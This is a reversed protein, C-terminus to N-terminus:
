LDNAATAVKFAGGRELITGFMRLRVKDGDELRVTVLCGNWLTNPGQLVARDCELARFALRRGGYTSLTRRMGTLSNGQLEFWALGAPLEYPARSIPNEPYYLWAFEARTMLTQSLTIADNAAVAAVFARAVEERTQFEPSLREVPELGERFRRLSEETTHLTDSPASVTQRADSSSCASSAAVAALLTVRRIRRM